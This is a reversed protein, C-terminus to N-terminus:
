APVRELLEVVDDGVSEVPVAEDRENIIDILENVRRVAQERTYAPKEVPRVLTLSDYVRIAAGKPQYWWAWLAKAKAKRFQHPAYSAARHRSRTKKTCEVVENIQNKVFGAIQSEHQAITWCEHEIKRFQSVYWSAFVDPPKGPSAELWQSGEDIVSMSQRPALIYDEWTRARVFRGPSGEPVHVAFNAVVTHGAALRQAILRAVFLSKGGGRLGVVLCLWGSRLPPGHKGGSGIVKGVALILLVVGLAYVPIVWLGPLGFTPM